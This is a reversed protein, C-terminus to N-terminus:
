HYLAWLEHILKLRIVKLGKAKQDKVTSGFSESRRFRKSNKGSKPEKATKKGHRGQKLRFGSSRGTLYFKIINCLCFKVFNANIKYLHRSFM